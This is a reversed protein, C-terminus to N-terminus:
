SVEFLVGGRGGERGVCYGQLGVLFATDASCENHDSHFRQKRVIGKGQCVAELNERNM